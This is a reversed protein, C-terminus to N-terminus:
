AFGIGFGIIGMRDDPHSKLKIKILENNATIAGAKRTPKWDDYNMSPSLDILTMLTESTNSQINNAFDLYKM